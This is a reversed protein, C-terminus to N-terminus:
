VAVGGLNQLFRIRKWAWLAGNREVFPNTNIEDMTFARGRDNETNENPKSRWYALIRQSRECGCKETPLLAVSLYTVIRAWHLNMNGQNDAPVGAVYNIALRDPEWSYPWTSRLGFAPATWGGDYDYPGLCLPLVQESCDGDNCDPPVDWIAVGQYPNSSTDTTDIFTRYVEVGTVYSAAASYDLATANIRTQLDPVVMLTKHGVIVANGGSLTVKVPRIRWTEGVAEGNRDTSTFYVAIESPDTVSVGGAADTITITFTDDIGDGDSDSYVLRGNALTASSQDMATRNLQGGSIVKAWKTQVPKVYGRVTRGNGWVRSDYQRPYRLREDVIYQPAPWFGCYEALAAEAEAIALGVEERSVYDEQWMHQYFTDRCQHAQTEPNTLQNFDWPNIGLIKAWTDLPLLTRTSARGM